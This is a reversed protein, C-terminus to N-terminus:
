GHSRSMVRLAPRPRVLATVSAAAVALTGLVTVAVVPRNWRDTGASLLHVTALVFLLYSGLHVWRWLRLPLHARVLSTVEVAVLLWMATIGWAVAVPHWASALPVLVDVPGFHVYSDAVIAGVHVAVFITALGGLYRNISLVWAPSPRRAAFRGALAAGM